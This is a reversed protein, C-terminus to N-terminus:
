RSRHWDKHNQRFWRAEPTLEYLPQTIFGAVKLAISYVTALSAVAVMWNWEWLAWTALAAVAIPIFHRFVDLVVTHTSKPQPSM